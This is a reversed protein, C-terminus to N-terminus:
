IEAPGVEGRRRRRAGVPRLPRRAAAVDVGEHGGGDRAVGVRGAAQPHRRGEGLHAEARHGVGEPQPADGGVGGDEAAEAGLDPDVVLAGAAVGHQLHHLGGAEVVDDAAAPPGEGQVDGALGAEVVADHVEAPEDAGVVVDREAHAAARDEDRERRLM